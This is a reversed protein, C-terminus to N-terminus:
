WSLDSQTDQMFYDDNDIAKTRLVRLFPANKCYIQVLEDLHVHERFSSRHRELLNFLYNHVISQDHKAQQQYIQVLEIYSTTNTIMDPLEGRVPLQGHGEHETFLKMAHIIFWFLETRDTLDLCSRDQFLDYLTSPVSTRVLRSRMTRQAEQFNESQRHQDDIDCTSHCSLQEIISKFKDKDQRTSPLDTRNNQKQWIELTKYLIILSPLHFHEDRTLRDIDIANCHSVFSTLPRDLRLDPLIDDPHAEIVYHETVQLRITGIFSSCYTFLYFLIPSL